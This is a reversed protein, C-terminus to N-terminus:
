GKRRTRSSALSSHWGEVGKLQMMCKVEGYILHNIPHQQTYGFFKMAVIEKSKIREARHVTGWAGTAICKEDIKFDNVDVIPITSM